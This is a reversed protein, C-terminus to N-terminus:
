GRFSNKRLRTLRQPPLVTKEAAQQISIMSASM